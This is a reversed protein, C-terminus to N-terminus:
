YSIEIDSTEVRYVQIKRYSIIPYYVFYTQEGITWFISNQVVVDGFLVSSTIERQMINKKTSTKNNKAANSKKPAAKKAAINKNEPTPIKSATNKKKQDSKNKPVAKKNPAAANKESAIRSKKFEPSLNDQKNIQIFDSSTVCSKLGSLFTSNLWKKYKPLNAHM